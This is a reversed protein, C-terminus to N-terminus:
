RAHQAGKNTGNPSMIPLPNIEPQGALLRRRHGAVSRELEAKRAAVDQLHKKYLDLAHAFTKVRLQISGTPKNADLDHLALYPTEGAGIIGDIIGYTPADSGCKFSSLDLVAINPHRAAFKAAWVKQVSNVSYNEPWVDRVDFVDDIIGSELDKAFFRKLYDADKPISRLSLVPYGLAQFEEPIEHNLGPDSHYPRGIMLLVVGNDREAQDLIERGKAEWHRDEPPAIRGDQVNGAAVRQANDHVRARCNGPDFHSLGDDG